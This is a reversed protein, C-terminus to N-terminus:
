FGLNFGLSLIRPRAYFNNDVGNGIEPDVGTYKTITFVNQLNANVRLNAKGNFV